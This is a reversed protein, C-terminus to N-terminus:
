SMAEKFTFVTKITCIENNEEITVFTFNQMIIESAQEVVEKKNGTEYDFKTKSEIYEWNEIICDKCCQMTKSEMKHKFVFDFKELTKDIGDAVSLYNPKKRYNVSIMNHDKHHGISTVHRAKLDQSLRFFKTL